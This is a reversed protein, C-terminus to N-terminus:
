HRFDSSPRRVSWKTFELAISLSRRRAYAPLVLNLCSPDINESSSHCPTHILGLFLSAHSRVLRNAHQTRPRVAASASLSNRGRRESTAAPRWAGFNDRSLDFKQKRQYAPPWRKPRATGRRETYSRYEVTRATRRRLFSAVISAPSTSSPAASAALYVRFMESARSVTLLEVRQLIADVILDADRIIQWSLISFM